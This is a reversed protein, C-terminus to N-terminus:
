TEDRQGKLTELLDDLNQMRSEWLARQDEFWREARELSDFRVECTRVRGQKRSRILSSDELVKLHKLFAPLGIDFPAALETVSAPGVMLRSVM